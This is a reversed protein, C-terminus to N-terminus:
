LIRMKRLLPTNFVCLDPSKRLKVYASEDVCQSWNRGM